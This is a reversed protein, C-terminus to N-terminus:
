VTTLVAKLIHYHHSFSSFFVFVYLHLYFYCIKLVYHDSDSDIETMIPIDESKVTINKEECIDYTTRM